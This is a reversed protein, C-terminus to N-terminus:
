AIPRGVGLLGEFGELSTEVGKVIMDLVRIAGLKNLYRNNNGCRYSYTCRPCGSESSCPCGKLMKRAREIAAELRDYLARSAGNGGVSGDYIIILGTNGMTIGGMDKSVGGTVLNTGEILVHETAHFSGMEEEESLGEPHPAMLVLGKTSFEYSVPSELYHEEVPKEEGIRYNVYGIVSKEIDLECYAVDIGFAKKREVISRVTPREERLARTYYPYSDPVREVEVRGFGKSYEWSLSRYRRGGLFYIADPHLEELAQPLSRFGLKRGELYISVQEGCGRIDYGRLKSRCARYDPYLRGAREKLYGESELREVAEEYGEVEELKLPSDLAMAVLQHELIVPNRPDIYGVEFDRFYDDPNDKYYQSIPDDNRLAVLAVSEEGRRGVRGTRQILRSVNVLDSIVADVGGIDIGLELTPTSSLAKIEGSRFKAELEERKKPLIGARHVEVRLGLRRAYFATLEAGLHSNSFILVKRGEGILYKLAELVLSRHGRLTPFLMAFHTSGHRGRGGEVVEVERGFLSSCFEKPNKITASSAVVQFDSFRSLRKLIFHVNSGFTGTYVHAEDVVLYEIGKFLTSYPSRRMLHYHIIDFNTLLIDPPDELMRERKAKPTDGDFVDIKVGLPYVLARLKLLQDRALAKTPYVFLSRVKGRRTRFGVLEMGRVLRELIPITFAETKGSGTPAAIVVDKGELILRIAEAQFKYLREIGRGKLAYTLPESLGLEEVRPGLEPEEMEMLKYTVLYDKDSYLIRRLSEPLDSRKLGFKGIMEDVEEKSRVLGEFDFSELGGEEYRELLELYADEPRDSRAPAVFGCKPCSFLYRGDYIRDVNLNGRCRPCRFRPM